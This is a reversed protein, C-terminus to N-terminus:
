MASQFSTTHTFIQVQTPWAGPHARFSRVANGDSFNHLGAQITEPGDTELAAASKESPRVIAIHGSVHPDPNIYVLVVLNGLNALSQADRASSVPTWGDRQAHESSFWRGQASALFDQGHDPPRLMYIGLRKAAAAAFASCHTKGHGGESQGTEWNVHVSAQWLHDVDLGLLFTLLQQGAPTIIGCCPTAAITPASAAAPAQAPKPTSACGLIALTCLLALRRLTAPLM